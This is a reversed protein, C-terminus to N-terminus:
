QLLMTTEHKLVFTRKLKSLSPSGTQAKILVDQHLTQEKVSCSPKNAYSIFEKLDKVWFCIQDVSYSWLTLCPSIFLIKKWKLFPKIQFCQWLVQKKFIKQKKSSVSLFFNSCWFSWCQKMLFLKLKKIKIQLFSSLLKSSCWLNDFYFVLLNPKNKPTKHCILGQLNNLALDMKICSTLEIEFLETWCSYM